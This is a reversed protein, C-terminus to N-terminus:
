WSTSLQIVKKQVNICHQIYRKKRANETERMQAQLRKIEGSAIQVAEPDSEGYVRATDMTVTTVDAPTVTDPPSITIRVTDSVSATDQGAKALSVCILIAWVAVVLVFLSRM